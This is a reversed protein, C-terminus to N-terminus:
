AKKKMITKKYLEAEWDKTHEMIRYIEKRMANIQIAYKKQNIQNNWCGPDQRLDFFEEVPRKTYYEGRAKIKPDSSKLMELIPPHNSLMSVPFTMGQEMWSNWIYVFDQNQVSRTPVYEPYNMHNYCTFAYNRWSEVKGTTCLQVLSHGQLGEVKNLGAVELLTPVIDVTEILHEKDVRGPQIHGAWRFILPTRTGGPGLYCKGYPVGMGNDSLFLVLTNEEMGSEKLARLIMGMSEDMRNVTDYYPKIYKRIGPLDPYFSPVPIEKSDYDKKSDPYNDIERGEKRWQEV